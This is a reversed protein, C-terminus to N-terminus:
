YLAGIEPGATKEAPENPIEPLRFVVGRQAWVRMVEDLYESAQKKTMRSTVPLIDMAELKEEYTLHSLKRVFEAFVPDDRMLIKCGILLKNERHVDNATVDGRHRAIDENAAWVADNQPNTRIVGERITVTLPLPLGALYRSVAEAQEPTVIQRTEAKM